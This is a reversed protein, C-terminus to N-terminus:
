KDEKKTKKTTKFEFTPKVEEKPKEEVEYRKRFVKKKM